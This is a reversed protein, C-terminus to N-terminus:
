HYTTDNRREVSLIFIENEVKRFVIRFSSKRVRFVNDIGKLKKMDFGSFDHALVQAIIEELTKREKPTLKKLFKAIRDM